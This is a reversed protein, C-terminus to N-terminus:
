YFNSTVRFVGLIKKGKVVEARHVEWRGNFHVWWFTTYEKLWRVALVHPNVDADHLEKSFKRWGSSTDVGGNEKGGASQADKFRRLISLALIANTKKISFEMEKADTRLIEMIKDGISLRLIEANKAEELEEKWNRFMALLVNIRLLLGLM